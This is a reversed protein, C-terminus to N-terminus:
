RDCSAERKREKRVRRKGAQEPGKYNYDIRTSRLVSLTDYDAVSLNEPLHIIFLRHIAITRVIVALYGM